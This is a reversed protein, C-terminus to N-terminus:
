PFAELWILPPPRSMIPPVLVSAQVMREYSADVAFTPMILVDGDLDDGMPAALHDLLVGAGVPLTLLSGGASGSPLYPVQSDIFLPIM